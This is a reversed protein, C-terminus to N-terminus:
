EMVCKIEEQESRRGAREVCQKATKNSGAKLAIVRQGSQMSSVSVTTVKQAHQFDSMEQVAIVQPVDEDLHQVHDQVHHEGLQNFLHPLEVQQRVYVACRLV